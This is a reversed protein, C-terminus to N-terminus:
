KYERLVRNIKPHRLCRLAQGEIQRIRETTVGFKKATEDLTLPEKGEYFGFRYKLVRVERPKLERFVLEMKNKLLNRDIEEDVMESPSPLQLSKQTPPLLHLDQERFLVLNRKRPLLQKQLAFLYDDPFLYDFPLELYESIELLKTEVYSIDKVPVRLTEIACYHPLSIGLVFAMDVQSMNRKKREEVLRANFLSIRAGVRM